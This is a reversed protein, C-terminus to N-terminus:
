EYFTKVKDDWLKNLTKLRDKYYEVGKQGDESNNDSSVVSETKIDRFELKASVIKKGNTNVHNFMSNLTLVRFM